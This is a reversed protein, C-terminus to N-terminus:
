EPSLTTGCVHCYRNEGRQLKYQQTKFIFNIVDVLHQLDENIQNSEFSPHEMPDVSAMEVLPKLDGNQNIFCWGKKPHFGIKLDCESSAPSTSEESMQDTNGGVMNLVGIYDIEDNNVAENAQRVVGNDNGIGMGSHNTSEEVNVQHTENYSATAPKETQAAKGFAGDFGIVLKNGFVTLNIPFAGIHQSIPNKFGKGEYMKKLEEVRSASISGEKLEQIVADNMLYIGISFDGLHDTPLSGELDIGFRINKELLSPEAGCSNKVISLQNGFMLAFNNRVENNIFMPDVINMLTDLEYARFIGDFCTHQKAFELVSAEKKRQEAKGIAAELSQAQPEQSARLVEEVKPAEQTKTEPVKIDSAKKTGAGKRVTVPVKRTVNAM